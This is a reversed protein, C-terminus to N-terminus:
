NYALIPAYHLDGSNDTIFKLTQDQNVPLAIFPADQVLKFAGNGVAPDEGDLTFWIDGGTAQVLYHTARDDIAVTAVSTPNANTAIPDIFIFGSQVDSFIKRLASVLSM